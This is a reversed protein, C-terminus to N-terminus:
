MLNCVARKVLGRAIRALAQLWCLDISNTRADSGGRFGRGSAPQQEDRRRREGRLSPDLRTTASLEVFQLLHLAEHLLRAVRIAVFPEDDVELRSLLRVQYDLVICALFQFADVERGSTSPRSGRARASCPSRAGPAPRPRRRPAQLAPPPRRRRRPSARTNHSPPAASSPRARARRRARPGVISPRHVIVPAHNM